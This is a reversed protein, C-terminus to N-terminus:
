GRIWGGSICLSPLRRTAAAQAAEARRRHTGDGAVTAAATAAVFAVTGVACRGAAAVNAQGNTLERHTPPAVCGFRSSDALALTAQLTM